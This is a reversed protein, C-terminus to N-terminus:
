YVSLSQPTTIKAAGKKYKMKCKNPQKMKASFQSNGCAPDVYADIGVSSIVLLFIRIEQLTDGGEAVRLIQRFQNSSNIKGSTYFL